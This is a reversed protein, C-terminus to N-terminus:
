PQWRAHVSLPPPPPPPASPPPSPPPPAHLAPWWSALCASISDSAAGAAGSATASGVAVAAAAPPELQWLRPVRLRPDTLLSALAASHQKHEASRESNRLVRQGETGTSRTSRYIRCAVSRRAVKSWDARSVYRESDSKLAVKPIVRASKLSSGLLRPLLLGLLLPGAQELVRASTRSAGSTGFNASYLIIIM